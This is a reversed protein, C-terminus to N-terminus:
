LSLGLFYYGPREGGVDMARGRRVPFLRTGIGRPQISSCRSGVQLASRVSPTAAAGVIMVIGTWCIWLGYAVGGAGQARLAEDIAICDM